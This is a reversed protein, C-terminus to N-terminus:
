GIITEVLKHIDWFLGNARSCVYFNPVIIDEIYPDQGAFMDCATSNRVCVAWGAKGGVHHQDRIFKRQLPTLELHVLGSKLIRPEYKLEIWCAQYGPAKVYLDPVGKMFPTTIKFAHFGEQRMQTLLESQFARESNAM